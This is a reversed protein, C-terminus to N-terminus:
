VNQVGKIVFMRPRLRSTERSWEINPARRKVFSLYTDAEEAKFTTADEERGVLLLVQTTKGTELDFLINGAVWLDNTM